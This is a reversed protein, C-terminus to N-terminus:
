RSSSEGHICFFLPRSHPEVTEAAFTVLSTMSRFYLVSSSPVSAGALWLANSVEKLMLELALVLEADLAAQQFPERLFAIM